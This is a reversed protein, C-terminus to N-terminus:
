GKAIRRSAGALLVCAIGAFVAYKWPLVGLGSAIFFLTGVVSLIIAVRNTNSNMERLDELFNKNAFKCPKGSRRSQVVSQIRLCFTFELRYNKEVSHYPLCSEM